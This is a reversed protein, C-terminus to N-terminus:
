RNGPTDLTIWIPEYHSLTASCLRERWIVDSGPFCHAVHILPRGVSWAWRELRVGKAIQNEAESRVKNSNRRTPVFSFKFNFAIPRGLWTVNASPRWTRTLSIIWDAWFFHEVVIERSDPIKISHSCMPTWNVMQQRRCMPGAGNRVASIPTRETPCTGDM